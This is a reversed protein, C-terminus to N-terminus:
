KGSAPVSVTAIFLKENLFLGGGIIGTVTSSKNEIAAAQGIRTTVVVIFFEGTKIFRNNLVEVPFSHNPFEHLINVFNDVLTYEFVLAPTEAVQLHVESAGSPLMARNKHM